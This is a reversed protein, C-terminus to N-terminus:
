DDKSHYLSMLGLCGFLVARCQPPKIIHRTSQTVLRMHSSNVPASNVTHRCSRTVLHDHSSNVPLGKVVHNVPINQSVILTIKHM